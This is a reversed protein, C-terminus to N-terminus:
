TMPLSNFGGEALMMSHAGFGNFGSEVIGSDIQFRFKAFTM